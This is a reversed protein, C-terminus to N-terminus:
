YTGEMTGVRTRNTLGALDCWLGGKNRSPKAVTRKICRCVKAVGVPVDLPSGVKRPWFKARQLYGPQTNWHM